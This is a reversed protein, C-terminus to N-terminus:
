LEDGESLKNSITFLARLDYVSANGQLATVTTRNKYIKVPNKGLDRGIMLYGRNSIKPPM